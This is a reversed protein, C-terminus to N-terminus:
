YIFDRTAAIFREGGFRLPVSAAFQIERRRQTETTFRRIKDERCAGDQLAPIGRPQRFVQPVKTEPDFKASFRHICGIERLFSRAPEM